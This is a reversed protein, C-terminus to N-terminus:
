PEDLNRQQVGVSWLDSWLLLPEKLPTPPILLRLPLFPIAWPQPEPLAIEVSKANGEGVTRIFQHDPGSLLRHLPAYSLPYVVFALFGVLLVRRVNKSM